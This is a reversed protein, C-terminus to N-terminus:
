NGRVIFQSILGAISQKLEQWRNPKAIFAAAGCALSKQVEKDNRTTSYVIVPVKAFAPIKKIECLCELGNLLPMNIDLFILDPIVTQTKLLELAAIGDGANIFRLEPDIEHIIEGFIFRDDLDDDALFITHLNKM